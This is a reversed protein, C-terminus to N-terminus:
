RTMPINIAQQRRWVKRPIRTKACAVCRAADLFSCSGCFSYSIFIIIIIGNGKIWWSRLIEMRKWVQRRRCGYYQKLCPGRLDIEIELTAEKVLQMKWLPEPLTTNRSLKAIAGLKEQYM